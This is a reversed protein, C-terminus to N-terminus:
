KALPAASPASAKNPLTNTRTLPAQPQLAEAQKLRQLQRKEVAKIDQNLVTLVRASASVYAVMLSLMVVLAIVMFGRQDRRVAPERSALRTKAPAIRM